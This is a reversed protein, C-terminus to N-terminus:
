FWRRKATFKELSYVARRERKRERRDERKVKRERESVTKTLSVRLDPETDLGIM